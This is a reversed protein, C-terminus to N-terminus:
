VNLGELIDIEQHPCSINSFCIDNLSIRKGSLYLDLLDKQHYSYNKGHWNEFQDQVRNNPSNVVCSTMECACIAPVEFFFRQMLQELKNPGSCDYIIQDIVWAITEKKFIHGDLSLPYNWYSQALCSMRNWIIYNKFLKTFQPLPVRYGDRSTINVGMRMSLCCLNEYNFLGELDKETTLCKKYVINDDTLFGIYLNNHCYLLCQKLGDAFNSEQKVFIIFKNEEKLKNYADEYEVSAKYLVIINNNIWNVNVSKLCLDLQLPRDKSFIITTLM